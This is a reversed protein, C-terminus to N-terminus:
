NSDGRWPVLIHEIVLLIGYLLFGLLVLITASAIAVTTNLQTQASFILYGLGENSSVFEAVVAGLLALTVSVKLGAFISPLATPFSVKQLLVLRKSNFSRVLDLMDKDALGLGATTDIVVPFFCVLFVTLVRPLFNLGLWLFLIPVFAVKPMVQAALIIPELISRLIRSEHILVAVAIGLSAALAFGYVAESLTVLTHTSWPINSALLLNLVSSPLPLIYSPVKLIPIFLQLLVLIVIVTFVSPALYSARRIFDLKL